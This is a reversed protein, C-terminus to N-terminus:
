PTQRFLGPRAMWRNGVPALGSLVLVIEILGEARASSPSADLAASVPARDPLPAPSLEVPAFRPGSRISVASQVGVMERRWTYLQGTGIEHRRAVEAPTVSPELSEAMIQCKQEPTWSRRRIARVLVEVQGSSANKRNITHASTDEVALDSTIADM